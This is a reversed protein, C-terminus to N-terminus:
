AFAIAEAIQPGVQERGEPAEVFADAEVAVVEIQAPSRLHGTRTDHNCRGRADCVHFRQARTTRDVVATTQLHAVAQSRHPDRRPEPRAHAHHRLGRQERQQLHEVGEHEPPEPVRSFFSLVDGQFADISDNPQAALQRLKDRARARIGEIEVRRTKRWM